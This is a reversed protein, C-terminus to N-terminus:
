ESQQMGAALVIKRWKETESAQFKELESPSLPFPIVGVHAMLDKVQQTEVAASFMQHLKGVISRPTNAPAYVAVWYTMEYDKIGAEQM